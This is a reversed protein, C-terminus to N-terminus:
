DKGANAHIHKDYDISNLVIRPKNKNYQPNIFSHTPRFGECNIGAIDLLFHSLDDTMIPLHRADKIMEKIDPRSFSPSTWVMFPVRIQYSIDSRHEANGHGMFDSLDFVEQGHDSLYIICSNQNEFRRIIQDVVYDNYYTANDYHALIEREKESWRASDYDSAKFLQFKKPYRESYTYHQGWLHIVYLSPTEKPHITEVMDMDFPVRKTNRYDFMIASLEADALFNVGSGVFYQNDYMYTKWGAAKFCAPFLPLREFGVGLSDLSFISLMAGHTGCAISIANDFVQLSGDDVRKQLLPNTEKKYGMLSSHYVSYSEGIVVVCTPKTALESSASVNRCVDKLGSITQMRQYLVYTSYALRTNTQYQPISMGKRYFAYNYICVSIVVFGICTFIAALWVYRLHSITRTLWLVCCNTVFLCILSIAIVRWSLYTEIFNDIEVPNTEALIDIADQGIAMHFQCVLFYDIILLMNHWVVLFMLWTLRPLKYWLVKYVFTEMYASMAAQMVMSVIAFLSNDYVTDALNSIVNLLFLYLYIRCNLPYLITYGIRVSPVSEM